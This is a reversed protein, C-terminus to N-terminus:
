QIGRGALCKKEINPADGVLEAFNHYFVHSLAVDIALADAQSLVLAIAKRFTLSHLSRRM